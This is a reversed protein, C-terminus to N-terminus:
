TNETEEVLQSVVYYACAWVRNDILSAIGLNQEDEFGLDDLMSEIENKFTFYVDRLESSYIFGNWGTDMGHTLVDNYSEEDINAEVYDKFTQHEARLDQVTFLTRTLKTM